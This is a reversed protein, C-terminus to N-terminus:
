LSRVYSPSVPRNGISKSSTDPPTYL